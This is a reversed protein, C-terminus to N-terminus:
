VDFRGAQSRRRLFALTLASFALELVAAGGFAAHMWVGPIVFALVVLLSTASLAWILTVAVGYARMGSWMQWWVSASRQAAKSGDDM